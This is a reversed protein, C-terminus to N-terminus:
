QQRSPWTRLVLMSDLMSLMISEILASTIEPICGVTYAVCAGIADAAATPWLSSGVMGSCVSTSFATFCVHIILYPQDNKCYNM